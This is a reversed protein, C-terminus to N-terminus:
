SRLIVAKRSQENQFNRLNAYPFNKPSHHEYRRPDPFDLTFLIASAFVIVFGSIALTM